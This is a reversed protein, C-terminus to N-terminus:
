NTASHTILVKYNFHRPTVLQSNIIYVYMTSAGHLLTILSFNQKQHTHLIEFFPNSIQLSKSYYIRPLM